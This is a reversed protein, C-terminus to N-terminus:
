KISLLSFEHQFRLVFDTSDLDLNEEFPYNLIPSAPAIPPTPQVFPIPASVGFHDLVYPNLILPNVSNVLALPGGSLEKFTQTINYEHGQLEDFFQYLNLEKSM